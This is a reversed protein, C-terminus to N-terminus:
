RSPLRMPLQVKNKSEYDGFVGTPQIRGIHQDTLYYPVLQKELYFQLRRSVMICTINILPVEDPQAMLRLTKKDDTNMIIVARAGLKQANLVKIGFSCGGGRLIAVIAGAVRVLYNNPDCGYLPNALVIKLSREPVNQEGFM